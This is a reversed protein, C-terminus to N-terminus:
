SERKEDAPPDAVGAQAVHTGREGQTQSIVHSADSHSIVIRTGSVSYSLGTGDLLRSLADDVSYSGNVSSSKRGAVLDPSFLLDMGASLAFQRLAQDLPQVAIRYEHVPAGGAVAGEAAVVTASLATLVALFPASQRTIPSM